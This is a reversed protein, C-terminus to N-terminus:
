QALGTQKMGLEIVSYMAFEDRTLGYTKLQDGLFDHLRKLAPIHREIGGHPDSFGELQSLEKLIISTDKEAFNPIKELGSFNIRPRGFIHHRSIKNYFQRRVFDLPLTNEYGIFILAPDIVSNEGFPILGSCIINKLFFNFFNFVLDGGDGSIQFLNEQYIGLYNQSAIIGQERSVFDSIKELGLPIINTPISKNVLEKPTGYAFTYDTLIKM